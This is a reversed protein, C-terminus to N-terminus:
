LLDGGKEVAGLLFICFGAQIASQVVVEHGIDAKRAIYEFAGSYGFRLAVFGLIFWRQFQPVSSHM